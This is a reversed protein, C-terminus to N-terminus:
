KRELMLATENLITTVKQYAEEAAGAGVVLTGLAAFERCKDFGESLFTRRNFIGDRVGKGEPYKQAPTQQLAGTAGDERREHTVFNSAPAVAQPLYRGNVSGWFNIGSMTNGMRQFNMPLSFPSNVAEPNREYRGDKYTVYPM